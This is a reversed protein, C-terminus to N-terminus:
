EAWAILRWGTLRQRDISHSRADRRPLGTMTVPELPGMPELSQRWPSASPTSDRTMTSRASFASCSMQVTELREGSGGADFPEPLFDVGGRARITGGRVAGLAELTTLSHGASTV